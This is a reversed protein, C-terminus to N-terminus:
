HTRDFGAGQNDLDFELVGKCKPCRISGQGLVDEGLTIEEGCKPCKVEYFIEENEKGSEKEDDPLANLVQSFNEGFDKLFDDLDDVSDELREVDHVVDQLEHRLSDQTNKMESLADTMEEFLDIMSVIVRGEPTQEDLQLGEALGKLFGFKKLYNMSSEKRMTM